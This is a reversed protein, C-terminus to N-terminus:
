NSQFIENGSFVLKRRALYFIFIGTFLSVVLVRARSKLFMKQLDGCRHFDLIKSKHYKFGRDLQTQRLNARILFPLLTVSWGAVAYFVLSRIFIM